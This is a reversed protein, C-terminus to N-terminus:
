IIYSFWSVSDLWRLPVLSSLIVGLYSWQLLFGALPLLFYSFAPSYPSLSTSMAFFFRLFQYYCIYSPIGTNLEVFPPCRMVILYTVPLTSFHATYVTAAPVLARTPRPRMTYLSLVRRYLGSPTAMSDGYLLSQEWQSSFHFGARSRCEAALRTTNM